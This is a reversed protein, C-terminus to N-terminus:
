HTNCFEPEIKRYISLFLTMAVWVVLHAIQLIVTLQIWWHAPKSPCNVSTFDSPLHLLGGSLSLGIAYALVWHRQHMTFLRPQWVFVRLTFDAFQIVFQYFSFMYLHSLISDHSCLCTPGRRQPGWKLIQEHSLSPSSLDSSDDRM